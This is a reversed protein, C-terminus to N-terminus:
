RQRRTCLRVGLEQGEEVLDLLAKQEIRQEDEAPPRQGWSRSPAAAGARRSPPLSNDTIPVALRVLATGIPGELFLQQRSNPTNM